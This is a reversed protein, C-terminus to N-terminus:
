YTISMKVGLVGTRTWIQTDMTKLQIGKSSVRTRGCSFMMTKTKVSGALGIKGSVKFIVGRVCKMDVLVRFVCLFVYRIINFFKKHKKFRIRAVRLKFYNKLIMLDHNIGAWVLLYILNYWRLQIRSRHLIKYISLYIKLILYHYTIPLSNMVVRNIIWIKQHLFYEFFTLLNIYVYNNYNKKDDVVVNNSIINDRSYLDWFVDGTVDRFRFFFYLFVNQYSILSNNTINLRLSHNLFAVRLLFRIM